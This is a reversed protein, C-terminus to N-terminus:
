PIVTLRKRVEKLPLLKIDLGDILISGGVIEVIRSLSLCITSKGAGTRGVVGVKERSRVHFSLDRLVIETNPRYKLNVDVFEIEGNEPWEPRKELERMAKVNVDTSEQPIDLLKFCRDVRVM